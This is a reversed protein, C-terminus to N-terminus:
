HAADDEDPVAPAPPGAALLALIVAFGVEALADPGPPEPETEPYRSFDMPFLTAREPFWTRRVRENSASARALFAEAEARTPLLGPGTFQADLAAILRPLNPLTRFNEGVAGARRAYEAFRALFLQAEPRLSANREVVPPTADAPVPIGATKLFDAVVDGGPFESRLFLRPRLAARGFVGEWASLLALYNKPRGGLPWTRGTEGTRLTTSFRSVAHEDQRRLYVVIRFTSAHRDLLAKIAAISSATALRAGFAESSFVLTHISAPLAALEEEFRRIMKRPATGEAIRALREHNTRGLTAPVCIGARGLAARNADLWAQISSSGTKTVGLHLIATRATMGSVM